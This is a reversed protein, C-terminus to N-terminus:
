EIVEVPKHQYRTRASTQTGKENIYWTTVTASSHLWSVDEPINVCMTDEDDPHTAWTLEGVENMFITGINDEEKNDGDSLRGDWESDCESEEDVEDEDLLVYCEHQPCWEIKSEIGWDLCTWALDHLYDVAIGTHWVSLRGLWAGLVEFPLCKKKPGGAHSQKNGGKNNFSNYRKSLMSNMSEAGENCFRWLNGYRKIMWMVHGSGMQHFYNTVGREAGGIRSVLLHYCADMHKELRAIDDLSYDDTSHLLENIHVYEDLFLMWDVRLQANCPPQAPIAVNVAEQLGGLQHVAFIKRSQDYPLKFKKIVKTDKEDFQHTWLEGLEGLRRIIPTLEDFVISAQAKHAGQTVAEYLMTLVKENTRMPMHLVDIITKHLVSSRQNPDDALKRFRDDRLYMQVKLYEEEERLLLELTRRKDHDNIRGYRIHRLRLDEKVLGMPCIRVGTHLNCSLDCGETTM